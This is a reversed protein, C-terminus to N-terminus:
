DLPLTYTTLSVARGAAEADADQQALDDATPPILTGDDLYQTGDFDVISEAIDEVHLAATM